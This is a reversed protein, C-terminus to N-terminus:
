RTGDCHCDRCTGVVSIHVAVDTFGHQSALGAAWDRLEGSEAEVADDCRRCLLYIHRGRSLSLRYRSEGREGRMADVSGQRLMTELLRYVTVLAM